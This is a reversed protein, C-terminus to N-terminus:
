HPLGGPRKTKREYRRGPRLPVLNRHFTIEFALDAAIDGLRDPSFCGSYAPLLAQECYKPALEADTYAQVLPRIKYFLAHASFPLDTGGRQRRVAEPIVEFVAEKLTWPPDEQRLARLRKEEARRAGDADRRRQGAAKHLVASARALVEATADAVERPVHLTTKGRDAYQPAPTIFHVIGARRSGPAEPYADRRALFSATSRAYTGGAALAVDTLPDRFAPSYNVGFYISGPEETSAVACEIM